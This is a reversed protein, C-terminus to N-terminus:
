NRQLWDVLKWYRKRFFRRLKMAPWRSRRLLGEIAQRIEPDQENQLYGEYVFQSRPKVKPVRSISRLLSVPPQLSEFNQLQDHQYLPIMTRVCKECQGCNLIGAPLKELCVRLNKRVIPEHM